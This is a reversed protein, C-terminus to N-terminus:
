KKAGSKKEKEAKADKANLTRLCEAYQRNTLAYVDRVKFYQYVKKIELLNQEEYSKLVKLLNEAKDKPLQKDADSMNNNLFEDLSANQEDYTDGSHAYEIKGTYDKPLAWKPLQPLDGNLKYSGGAEAIDMWYTPLDYLYRGIGWQAAARKMANSLGGKTPDVKTNDAGDEKTVARGDIFITIKCIQSNEGWRIFENQWNEAGCVEDLRNQVARNTIYPLAIGKTKAKNTAGVRWEIESPKFPERLRRLDIGSM